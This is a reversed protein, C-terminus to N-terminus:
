LEDSKIGEKEALDEIPVDKKMMELYNKAKKNTKSLEMIDAGKEILMSVLKLKTAEDQVTELALMLANVGEENHAHVDAGKSILLEAIGYERKGFSFMLASVGDKNKASIDVNSDNIQEIAGDIDEQLISIM